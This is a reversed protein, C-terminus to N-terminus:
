QLKGNRIWTGERDVVGQRFHIENGTGDFFYPAPRGLFKAQSVVSHAHMLLWKHNERSSIATSSGPGCRERSLGLSAGFATNENDRIDNPSM